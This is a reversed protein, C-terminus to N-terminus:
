AAEAERHEHLSRKQQYKVAVEPPPAGQHRGLNRSLYPNLSLAFNLGFNPNPNLALNLNPGLYPNLNLNRNLNPSLHPNLNHGPYPM